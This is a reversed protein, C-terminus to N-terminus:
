VPYELVSLDSLTLVDPVYSNIVISISFPTSIDLYKYRMVAVKYISNAEILLQVLEILVPTVHCQM